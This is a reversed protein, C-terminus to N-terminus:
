AAGFPDPIAVPVVRSMSVIAAQQTTAYVCRVLCGSVHRFIQICSARMTTMDERQRPKDRFCVCCSVFITLVTSRSLCSKRWQSSLGCPPATSSFVMSLQGSAYTDCRRAQWRFCIHRVHQICPVFFDVPWVVLFFRNAPYTSSMTAM